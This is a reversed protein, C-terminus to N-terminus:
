PRVAADAARLHVAAAWELEFHETWRAALARDEILLSTEANFRFASMSWNASGILLWRGDVALVKSHMRREPDNRRVAVGAQQLFTAFGDNMGDDQGPRDLLVRLELGRDRAAVLAEALQRVPHGPWANEPLVALFLALDIRSHAGAILAQIRPLHERDLLLEAAPLRTGATVLLILVLFLRHM